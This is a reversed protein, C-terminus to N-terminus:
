RRSASAISVRVAKVVRTAIAGPTPKGVCSGESSKRQWCCRMSYSIWFGDFSGRQGADALGARYRKGNEWLVYEVPAHELVVAARRLLLRLWLRGIRGNGDAFPRIAALKHHFRIAAVLPPLDREVRLSQLQSQVADKVRENRFQGADPRLLHLLIHHAELLDGKQLPDWSALREYALSANHLELVDRAMALERKGQLIDTALELSVASGSLAVTGFLAKISNAYQLKLPPAPNKLGGEWSGLLREIEGLKTAARGLIRLPLEIM